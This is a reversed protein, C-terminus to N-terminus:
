LRLDVAERPLVYKLDYLVHGDARGFRRIAPADLAKFERHAVALVIGDYAGADTDAVLEIGAWEVGGLLNWARM